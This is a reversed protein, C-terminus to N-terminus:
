HNNKQLEEIKKLGESLLAILIEGSDNRSVEIFNNKLLHDEIFKIKDKREEPTTEPNKSNDSNYRKVFFASCCQEHTMKIPIGYFKSWESFGLLIINIEAEFTQPYWAEIEQITASRLPCTYRKQVEEIAEKYGIYIYRKDPKGDPTQSPIGCKYYLYSAVKNKDFTREQMHVKFSGCNECDYRTYSDNGDYEVKDASIDGGCVYCKKVM